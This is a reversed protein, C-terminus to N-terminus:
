RFGNSGGLFDVIKKKQIPSTHIQRHAIHVYEDIYVDHAQARYGRYVFHASGLLFDHIYQTTTTAVPAAYSKRRDM